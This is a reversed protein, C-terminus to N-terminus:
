FELDDVPPTTPQTPRSAAPTGQGAPHNNSGQATSEIPLDQQSRDATDGKSENQVRDLVVTAASVLAP